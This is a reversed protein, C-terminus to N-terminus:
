RVTVTRLSLTQRQNPDVRVTAALPSLKALLREDPWDGSFEDAAAVVFYEGPIVKSVSFASIKSVRVTRFTRTSSRADPWRTRDTPFVFVSADLDDGGIAKSVTGTLAAPQDTFMVVVDSVEADGVTIVADTIDRGGATVSQLSWTRQLELAGLVYRGPSLGRSSFRGDPELPAESPGISNERFQPQARTVTIPVLQRMRNGAPRESAGSFEVRGAIRVPPRLTLALNGINADGVAVSQAASAGVMESVTKPETPPTSRDGSAPASRVALITYSGSPVLPFVFAGRADTTGAAVELISAGDGGDAPMLHVGFNPVPGSGDRLTGSVEVTTVPQLLVDIDSREEGSHIVIPTARSATIASPFFMTQYAYLKDARRTPVPFNTVRGQISTLLTSSGVRIGADRGSGPAEWPPPTPAGTGTFRSRESPNPPNALLTEITSSPMLLQTQPVVVLYTGPVLTALRYIGRDDTRATPGNLLRGDSSRQVAAVSMDVLPEGAEDLIRGTIAGGKWLRIVADGVREGDALDITQMPGGPRRQGYGGNLYAGVQHGMGTVIFGSPSYGNGGITAALSYTGKPLNRFVFRGQADTLM